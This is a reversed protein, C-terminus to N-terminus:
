GDEGAMLCNLIEDADVSSKSAKASMANALEESEVNESHKSHRSNRSQMARALEDPDIEEESCSHEGVNSILKETVSESEEFHTVQPSPPPIVVPKLMDKVFALKSANVVTKSKDQQYFLRDEFNPVFETPESESNYNNDALEDCLTAGIIPKKDELLELQKKKSLM